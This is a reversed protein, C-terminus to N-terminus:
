KVGRRKHSSLTDGKITKITTLRETQETYYVSAVVDLCSALGGGLTHTRRQRKDSRQSEMVLCVFYSIFYDARSKERKERQRQTMLRSSPIMVLFSISFCMACIALLSGSEMRKLQVGGRRGGGKWGDETSWPSRPSVLEYVQVFSFCRKVEDVTWLFVELLNLEM